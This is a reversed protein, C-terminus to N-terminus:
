FIGKSELWTVFKDLVNTLRTFVDEATDKGAMGMAEARVEAKGRAEPEYLDRLSEYLSQVEGSGAGGAGRATGLLAATEEAARQRGSVAGGMGALGMAGSAANGLGGLMGNAVGFIDRGIPAGIMGLPALAALSGLLSGVNFGGGGVGGGFGQGGGGIGGGGRVPVTVGRGAQSYLSSLESKAGALDLSVRISADAV